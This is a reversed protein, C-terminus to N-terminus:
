RLCFGFRCDVTVFFLDLASQPFLIRYGLITTLCLAPAHWPSSIRLLAVYQPLTSSRYDATDRETRRGISVLFLM